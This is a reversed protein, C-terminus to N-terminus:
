RSHVPALEAPKLDSVHQSCASSKWPLDGAEQLLHLIGMAKGNENADPLTGFSYCSRLCEMICEKAQDLSHSNQRDRKFLRVAKLYQGEIRYHEAAESFRGMKECVTACTMNLGLEELFTSCEVESDFLRIM